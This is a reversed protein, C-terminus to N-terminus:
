IAAVEVVGMRQRKEHDFGPIIVFLPRRNLALRSAAACALGLALDFAKPLLGFAPQFM